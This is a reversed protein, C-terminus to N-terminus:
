FKCSSGKLTQLTKKKLEQRRLNLELLLADQKLRKNEERMQDIEDQLVSNSVLLRDLILWSSICVCVLNSWDQHLCYSMGLTAIINLCLFFITRHM